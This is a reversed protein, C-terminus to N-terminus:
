FRNLPYRRWLQEDNTEVIRTLCIYFIFLLKLLYFYRKKYLMTVLLTGLYGLMTEPGVEWRQVAHYTEM